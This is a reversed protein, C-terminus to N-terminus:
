RKRYLFQYFYPRAGDPTEVVYCDAVGEVAFDHKEGLERLQRVSLPSKAAETIRANQELFTAGQESSVAGQWVAASLHHELYDLFYQRYAHLNESVTSVAFTGRRRLVRRAEAFFAEPHPLAWVVSHSLVHDVGESKVRVRNPEATSESFLAAAESGSVASRDVSMATIDTIAIKDHPIGYKEAQEAMAPNIDLLYVDAEPRVCRAEATMIGIGGGADIILPAATDISRIWRMHLEMAHRYFPLEVIIEYVTQYRGRSSFPRVDEADLADNPPGAPRDFDSM